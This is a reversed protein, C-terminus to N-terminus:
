DWSSYNQFKIHHKINTNFIRTYILCKIIQHYIVINPLLYKYQAQSEVAARPRSIQKKNTHKQLSSLVLIVLDRGTAIMFDTYNNTFIIRSQNKSDIYKRPQILGISECLWTWKKTIIEYDYLCRMNNDRPTEYHTSNWNCM